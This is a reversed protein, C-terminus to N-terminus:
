KSLVVVSSADWSLYVEDEWDLALLGDKPRSLNLSTFEIITDDAVRVRYTSLKGLYGIDDIVGKM